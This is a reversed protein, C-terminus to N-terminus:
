WAFRSLVFNPASMEKERCVSQVANASLGETFEQAHQGTEVVLAAALGNRIAGQVDARLSCGIHCVNEEVGALELLERAAEFAANGPKGFYQVEGGLTEYEKALSGDMHATWGKRAEATDPNVCLMRLKSSVARKFIPYFPANNGDREFNTLTEMSTGAFFSQVGSVLLFDARDETGGEGGKDLWAALRDQDERAKSVDNLVTLYPDPLGRPKKERNKRGQSLRMEEKFAAAEAKNSLRAEPAEGDGVLVYDGKDLLDTFFPGLGREEREAWDIWFANRGVKDKYKRLYEHALDGSTVVGEVRSLDLGM